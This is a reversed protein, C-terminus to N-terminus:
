RVRARAALADHGGGGRPMQRRRHDLLVTSVAEVERDGHQRRRLRPLTPAPQFGDLVGVAASQGTLDPVLRMEQERPQGVEDAVRRDEVGDLVDQARVQEHPAGAEEDLLGVIRGEYGPVLVRRVPAEALRVDDRRPQGERVRGDFVAGHPHHRAGVALLERM